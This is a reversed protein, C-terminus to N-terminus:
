LWNYKNNTIRSKVKEPLTKQKQKRGEIQIKDDISDWKMNKMRRIFHEYCAKHYEPNPRPYVPQKNTTTEFNEKEKEIM